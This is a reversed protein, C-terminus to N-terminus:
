LRWSWWILLPWPGVRDWLYDTGVGDQTSGVRDWLYDTGVGDQTSGVRIGDGDYTYDSTVGNITSDVM